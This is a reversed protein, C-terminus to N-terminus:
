FACSDASAYELFVVAYGGAVGHECLAISLWSNIVSSSLM